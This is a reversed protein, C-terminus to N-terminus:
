IRGIISHVWKSGHQAFCSNDRSRVALVVEETAETAETRGPIMNHFCLHSIDGCQTNGHGTDRQLSM